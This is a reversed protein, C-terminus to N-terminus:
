MTNAIDTSSTFSCGAKKGAAEEIMEIAKLAQKGREGPNQTTLCVKHTANTEVFTDHPASSHASEKWVRSALRTVSSHARPMNPTSCATTSQNRRAALRPDFWGAPQPAIMPLYHQQIWQTM